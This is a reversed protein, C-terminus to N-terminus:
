RDRKASNCALCAAKLNAVNLREGGNALALSHDVTTAHAGDCHTRLQCIYGDRALVEIRVARWAADYGRANTKAHEACRTNLTLAPCGAVLCRRSPM